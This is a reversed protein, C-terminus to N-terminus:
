DAYLSKRKLPSLLMLLIDIIISALLIAGSIILVAAPLALYDGQKICILLWLGAGQLSFVIEIVMAFSIITNLQLRLQHIISPLANKLVHRLVIKKRSLGNAYAAKIYNSKMVMTISHRTLRIIETSLFFSLVAAPLILHVLHSFFADLQYIDAALLSDILMFGSVVPVEFLPSIGGDIPLSVGAWRPLMTTIIALWFVPLALGILAVAMILYDLPHDRNLATLIGLPIGIITATIFAIFCLELTSAFASLGRSLIPQQDITSLGWEGQLISSMYEIYQALYNADTAASSSSWHTLIFAIVTLIFANISLLNLRRFIYNLM